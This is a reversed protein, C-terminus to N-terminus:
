AHATEGAEVPELRMPRGVLQFVQIPGGGEDEDRQPREAPLGHPADCDVHVEGVDDYLIVFHGRRVAKGCAECPCGTSDPRRKTAAGM